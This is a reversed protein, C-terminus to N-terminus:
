CKEKIISILNDIDTFTISGGAFIFDVNVSSAIRLVEELSESSSKDPDLLLAISKRNMLDVSIMNNEKEDM